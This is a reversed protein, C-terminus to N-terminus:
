TRRLCVLTIDDDQPHSAAFERVKALIDRGLEEATGGDNRICERLRDIGFLERSHNRAESIGDTYLVITEGVGLPVVAEHYPRNMVALPLDIIEEALGVPDGGGPRRLLPPMHGCNVITMTWNNLDIVIVVFTVFHDDNSAELLAKNLENVADALTPLSALWFRAAASLRAMLLAAPIGKGTVDGLTIALRNGSLPIYDFYDGGIEEAPSYYDFIELGPATPRQQPLFGKQISAAAAREKRERELVDRELDVIREGARLRVRLEDRDFPKTIFDDAGAEMGAVIDEKQSKATLMIIYVYSARPEARIRRTLELGDIEPMMWDSVVMS